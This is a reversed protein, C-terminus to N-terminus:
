GTIYGNRLGLICRVRSNLVNWIIREIHVVLTSNVLIATGVPHFIRFNAIITLTIHTTVVLYSAFILPLRIWFNRQVAFLISTLVIRFSTSYLPNLNLRRTAATRIRWNVKTSDASLGFEISEFDRGIRHVAIEDIDFIILGLTVTWGHINNMGIFATLFFKNERHDEATLRNKTVLEVDKINKVISNMRLQNLINLNKRLKIGILLAVLKILRRGSPMEYSLQMLAEPLFNHLMRVPILHQDAHRTIVARCLSIDSAEGILM